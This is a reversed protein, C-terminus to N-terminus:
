DGIKANWYEKVCEECSHGACTANSDIAQPCFDPLGNEDLHAKPFLKLFAELRTKVTAKIEDM